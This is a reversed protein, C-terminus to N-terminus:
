LKIIQFTQSKEAAQVRLSYTGPAQNQLDLSNLSNTLTQQVVLQGAANFLQGAFSSYETTEILVHLLGTTPNPFCSIGTLLHPAKTATTQQEGPQAGMSLAGTTNVLYVAFPEGMTVTLQNNNIGGNSFTPRQLNNQAHISLSFTAIAVMLPLKKMPM